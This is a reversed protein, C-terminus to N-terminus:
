HSPLSQPDPSRALELLEAGKVRGIATKIAVEAEEETVKFLERWLRRRRLLEHTEQEVEFCGKVQFWFVPIFERDRYSGDASLEIARQRPDKQTFGIKLAPGKYHRGWTVDQRLSQRFVYVFGVELAPANIKGGLQRAIAEKRRAETRHERIYMRQHHRISEPLDSLDPIPNAVLRDYALWILYGLGVCILFEM